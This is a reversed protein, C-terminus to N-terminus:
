KVQKLLPEAPPAAPEEVLGPRVVRPMDENAALEARGEQLLKSRHLLFDV